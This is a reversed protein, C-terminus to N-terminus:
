IAVMQIRKYDTSYPELIDQKTVSECFLDHKIDLWTMKAQKNEEVVSKAGNTM